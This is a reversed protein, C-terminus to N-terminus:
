VRWVRRIIEVSDDDNIIDEPISNFDETLEKLNHLITFARINEMECGESFHIVAKFANKEIDVEAKNQSIYFQQKVDEYVESEQELSNKEKLLELFNKIEKIITSADGDVEDGNKIKELEM